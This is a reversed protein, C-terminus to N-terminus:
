VVTLKTSKLLQLHLFPDKRRKGSMKKEQTNGLLSPGSGAPGEDTITFFLASPAPDGKTGGREVGTHSRKGEHM